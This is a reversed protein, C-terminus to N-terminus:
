VTLIDEEKAKALSDLKKKYEDLTETIQKETRKVDDESIDGDKQQQKATNIVDHRITRFSINAEEKKANLEKVVDLRREETMPPIPVRVVKGDDAPNLNLSSDERIAKSIADLNSPDFPSIQIMQADVATITSMHPLPMQQGYVEVQVNELMGVNARGTRLKKLQDEFHALSDDLKQTAENIDLAM